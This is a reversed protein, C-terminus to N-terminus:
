VKRDTARHVLAALILLSLGGMASITRLTQFQWWRNSLESWNSPPSTISWTKIQNNIPVNGFATIFAVAIICVSAAILVYFDPRDRRALITAVITFFVGLIVIM